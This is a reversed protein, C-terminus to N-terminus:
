TLKRDEATTARSPIAGKEKKIPAGPKVLGGVTSSGGLGGRWGSPPMWDKERKQTGWKIFRMATLKGSFILIKIKQWVIFEEHLGGLKTNNIILAKKNKISESETGM